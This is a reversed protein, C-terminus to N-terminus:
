GDGGPALTPHEDGSELLESATRECYATLPGALVTLALGFAVLAITAGTMTRPLRATTVIAQGGLTTAGGTVTRRSAPGVTEEPGYASTLAPEGPSELVTGPTAAVALSPSRWFAYGWLRAMAYLTLLSTVVSGAVLTYALPGGAAVGAQVLGLKGLFGSLPPIGALNMAPVFFLIGLVPSLTALGGLSRMSTTGGRREILGAVLFLSTQVTIHHVAYFIAASLGHVSGVALGFVLYGIHSVLTFSLLRKIDTQAVAGLIGVLMTALAVVLLLTDLSGGPFLLTQTRIMTYVGVKTLLGAFVATVPAPATPYSDPLWASLPFVAAKIAFGTLLLTHLVLQLQPPLEALREALQALNVTGTAAYITAVAVLFVMSSVLSVVVYTAGARLRSGTGGLTLLVYSATLLVEFGVYVNFLDGALFATAVGAVLILYTPHYIALPAVEEGDVMGQGISYVLVALTIAVSVVLLLASLRDAVLSIGVPAAWGGVQVVLPGHTDAAVLLLVSVLLVVSLTTVSLVRQLRPWRRGLALRLGAALLPLVVPLPVLHGTLEVM